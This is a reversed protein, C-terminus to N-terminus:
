DDYTNLKAAVPAMLQLRFEEEELKGPKQKESLFFRWKLECMRFDWM